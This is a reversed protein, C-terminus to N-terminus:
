VGFGVYHLGQRELEPRPLVNRGDVVWTGKMAKKVQAWDLALFEPWETALFMLGAGTVASMASKAISFNLKGKLAQRSNKAAVPDYAKVRAGSALLNKIIEIAASERIDDTEPKFALGLVAIRRGSLSGGLAQTIKQVALQRQQSNVEIVARLLKFHYRKKLSLWQLARVDKPFCSGGYGIGPRLFQRGIRPDYGIGTAVTQVDAGVRECTNAIENIFSIKTALFANAAYKIMEATEWNTVLKPCRYSRYLNLLIKVAPESKDKFGLVIRDPRTFDAVAKGERLFEPNSVISINKIVTNVHRATGLPVTSKNIVVPLANSTKKLHDKIAGIVKFYAGMDSSGDAKAPTGVCIFVLDAEAMADDFSATFTLRGASLNKKFMEALDPEYFPIRGDRLTKIKQRDIDYGIAQHGIDALCVATVLGVYGSGIM